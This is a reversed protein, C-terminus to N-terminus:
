AQLVSLGLIQPGLRAGQFHRQFGAVSSSREVEGLVVCGDSSDFPSRWRYAFSFLPAYGLPRFCCAPGLEPEPEPQGSVHKLAVFSVRCTQVAYGM